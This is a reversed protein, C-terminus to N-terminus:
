ISLTNEMFKQPQLHEINSWWTVVFVSFSAYTSFIKCSKEMNPVGDLHMCLKERLGEKILKQGYKFYPLFIMWEFRHFGVNKVSNAFHYHRVTWIPCKKVTFNKTVLKDLSKGWFAVSITLNRLVNLILTKKFFFLHAIEFFFLNQPTAIKRYFPYPIINNWVFTNEGSNVTKQQFWFYKIIQFIVFNSSSLIQFSFAKM